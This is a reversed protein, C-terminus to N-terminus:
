SIADLFEVHRLEQAPDIHIRALHGPFIAHTQGDLCPLAQGKKMLLRGTILLSDQDHPRPDSIIKMMLRSRAGSADRVGFVIPRIDALEQENLHTLFKQLRTPYDLQVSAPGLETELGELNRPNPKINIAFKNSWDHPQDHLWTKAERLSIFGLDQYARRLCEKPNRSRSASYSMSPNRGRGGQRGGRSAKWTAHRVVDVAEALQAYEDPFSHEFLVESM